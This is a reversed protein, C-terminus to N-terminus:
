WQPATAMLMEATKSNLPRSFFYGQGHECQLMRLQALQEATEIGEAIVDMGLNHALTIIAQVIEANEGDETMESVFSRDIKLTNIPFQHLRSLSSYGTGFDDICLHIKLVKLQELLAAVSDANEMIGSETIELKLSGPPLGTEKLTQDIQEILDPQSFQKGSLNVSITLPPYSRFQQQWRRLQCCSERLVWQGIPIILGTEEAVPIFDAPSILGQEPHQWRVLAEFWVIKGTTLSVIPQYYVQLEQREIAWRLETELQLLAVACNYMATDFVAHRAKGNAKARYMATDADRLLDEPRDYGTASLAIGISATTFVEYGNLNFPLKLTQHIHEAVATAESVDRIDDLLITFEDGGLRALEDSPRLCSELRRAIAILLQDGVMHGLSDNVVKFRDFDLFLVSFLYDKRRKARLISYKLRDMFLARNPLGTLGDHFADYLLQEEMRKRETIDTDIGDIRIATGDSSYVLRSRDYLWRVEGNPRVIRYEMEISGKERLTEMQSVVREKDEPHIVEFWLKSNELFESVSRGYVSETAPNLYLMEFTSISASWVVDDLSSLISNLRQESQRLAELAQQRQTIDTQIGVFHTLYGETDFVPSVYLENWFRSGDKRYNQLIVHCEQQEQIAARLETVVSPDTDTGQLFRCNHGVVDEVTYGTISEFAPNVYIVPNDPQNADTIVIGNSSSAVTREMLHLRVESQKREIATALVNAVSQLFHIDDETFTRQTNAYAGLVGFPQEQGPIIVSIGSICSHNHLLPPGSFRTEIRFDEVIVPKRTLLTYGVQSHAQAGVLAYGVLGKNWGVGARLLFVNGNPLLELIKCYKVELTQAILTVAENMLTTLDAGALAWQGLQAVAAQQRAHVRLEVEAQKRLRLEDYVESINTLVSLVAQQGEYNILRASVLANFSDGNITKLQLEYNNLYGQSQLENILQTRDDPNSYFDVATKDILKEDFIKLFPKVVTNHFLVKGDELRTIVIPVPTIILLSRLLEEHNELEKREQKYEEIEELFKRDIKGLNESRESIKIELREDEEDPIQKIKKLVIISLIWQGISILFLLLGVLYAMTEWIVQHIPNRTIPSLDIFVQLIILSDM